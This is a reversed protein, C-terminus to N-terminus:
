CRLFFRTATLFTEVRNGDVLPPGLLTSMSRLFQQDSVPYLHTPRVDIKKEARLNLLVLTALATLVVAALIPWIHRKLKMSASSLPLTPRVM